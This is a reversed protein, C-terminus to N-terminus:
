HLLTRLYANLIDTHPELISFFRRNYSTLIDEAYSLQSKGDETPSLIRSRSDSQHTKSTILSKSLLSKVTNSVIMKDLGTSKCLQNQTVKNSATVLEVLKSLVLTEHYSLEVELLRDRLDRQWKQSLRWLLHGTLDSIDNNKQM